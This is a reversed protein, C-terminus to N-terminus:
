LAGLGKRCRRPSFDVCHKNRLEEESFGLMACLAPNVFLPKGELTEVAIGIPSAHFADYFLQSDPIAM